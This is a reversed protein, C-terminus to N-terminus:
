QLGRTFDWDKSFKDRLINKGYLPIQSTFFVPGYYNTDSSHYNIYLSDNSM